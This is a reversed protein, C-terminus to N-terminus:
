IKQKEPVFATRSPLFMVVNRYFSICSDEPYVIEAVNRYM